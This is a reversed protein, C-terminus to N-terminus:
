TSAQRGLLLQEFLLNFGAPRCSNSSRVDNHKHVLRTYWACRNCRTDMSWAYIDDVRGCGWGDGCTGGAKAGGQRCFYLALCPLCPRLLLLPLGADQLALARIVRIVCLPHANRSASSSRHPCAPAHM